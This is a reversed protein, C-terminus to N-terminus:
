WYFISSLAIKWGLDLAKLCSKMNYYRIEIRHSSATLCILLHLLCPEYGMVQSSGGFERAPYPGHRRCEQISAYRHDGPKGAASRRLFGPTILNNMGSPM